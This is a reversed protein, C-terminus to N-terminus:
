RLLVDIRGGIEGFSRRKRGGVVRAGSSDRGRL